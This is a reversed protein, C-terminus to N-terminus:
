CTDGLGNTFCTFRVGASALLLSAMKGKGEPLGHVGVSGLWSDLNHIESVSPKRKAERQSAPFQMWLFQEAMM